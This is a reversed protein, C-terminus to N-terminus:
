RSDGAPAAQLGERIQERVQDDCRYPAYLSVRQLVDGFRENLRGAIRDPEGVVAMADLLKDDILSGMASWEGQKSLRNLEGQLEGWGHLDLVPRYAPTSGYFAIQRRTGAAADRLDDENAGTVVFTPCFIEFGDLTKGVKRRGRLLAPITVERLYRETTFAHCFYGDAVEGAVETMLPGVGAVFIRPIGYEAIDNRDPVFFPPMLTHTYFDGRFDLKSGNLWCDWIARVAQVLERMRAAPRSWPMSFRKVIHAEIQSGLGIITRGRSYSQLDWGLNALLMPSRAFAVAISTGIDVRETNEAALVLPLFPDHSTEATWIGDYGVREADRAEQGASSLVSAIHCDVKV